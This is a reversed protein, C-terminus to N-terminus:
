GRIDHYKNICNDVKRNLDNLQKELKNIINLINTNDNYVIQKNSSSSVNNPKNKELNNIRETLLRILRANEDAKHPM